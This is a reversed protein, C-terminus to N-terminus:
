APPHNAVQNQRAPSAAAGGPGIPSQRLHSTEHLRADVRKLRRPGGHAIAFPVAARPLWQLARVWPQGYVHPRRHAIGATLRAVAPALPTTRNMPWPLRARMERLIPDEDASRVMDTDTWSLYAVGVTVDQHATEARLAQAFAEVGAKSACYAAMLPAPAIAALSAIQLLYGRSDLLAPLFARATAISGLLNVEIVRDFARPDADATPGALAIGANAVVIDVRGFHAVTETAVANMRAPDTVDAYWIPTTSALTSTPTTPTPIPTSTRTSSPPVHPRARDCAAATHALEDHELGVLALHAGQEALSIALAAGLGRAAGTIVVVKGALSSSSARSSSRSPSPSSM